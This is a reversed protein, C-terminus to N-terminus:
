VPLGVRQRAHRVVAAAFPTNLMGLPPSAWQPTGFYSTGRAVFRRGENLGQAFRQCIARCHAEDFVFDLNGVVRWVHVVTKGDQQETRFRLKERRGTMTPVEFGEPLRYAPNMTLERWVPCTAGCTEFAPCSAPASSIAPPQTSDGSESAPSCAPNTAMSADLVQPLNLYFAKVNTGFQRKLAEEAELRGFAGQTSHWRVGFMECFIDFEPLDDWVDRNRLHCPHPNKDSNCRFLYTLRQRLNGAEGVYFATGRDKLYIVYVGPEEPPMQSFRLGIRTGQMQPTCTILEFTLLTEQVDQFTMATFIPIANRPTHLLAM